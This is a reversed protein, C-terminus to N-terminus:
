RLIGAITFFVNETVKRLAFKQHNSILSLACVIGIVIEGLILSWTLFAYEYVTSTVPLLLSVQMDTFRM